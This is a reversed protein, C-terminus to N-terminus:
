VFFDSITKKPTKKREGNYLINNMPYMSRKENAFTDNNNQM